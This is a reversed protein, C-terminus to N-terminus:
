YWTRAQQTASFHFLFLHLDVFGRVAAFPIRIANSETHRETQLLWNLYLPVVGSKNLVFHKSASYYTITLCSPDPHCLILKSVNHDQWLATHSRAVCCDIPVYDHRKTLREFFLVRPELQFVGAVYSFPKAPNSTTSRVPVNSDSVYQLAQQCPIDANYLSKDILM